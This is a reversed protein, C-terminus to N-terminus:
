MFGKKHDQDQRQTTHMNVEDAHTKLCDLFMYGSVCHNHLSHGDAM